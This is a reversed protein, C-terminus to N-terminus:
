LLVSKKRGKTATGQDLIQLTHNLESELFMMLQWRYWTKRQTERSIVWYNRLYKLNGNSAAKMGAWLTTQWESLHSHNIIIIIIQDEIQQSCPQPTHCHCFLVPTRMKEMLVPYWHFPSGLSRTSDGDKCTKWGQAAQDSVSSHAHPCSRGAQIIWSGMADEMKCLLAATLCINSWMGICLSSFLFLSHLFYYCFPNWNRASIEKELQDSIFFSWSICLFNIVESHFCSIVSTSFWGGSLGFCWTKSNYFLNTFESALNFEM